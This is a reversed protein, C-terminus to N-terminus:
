DAREGVGLQRSGRAVSYVEDDVQAAVALFLLPALDTGVVCAAPHIQLRAAVDPIKGLVVSLNERRAADDIRRGVGDRASPCALAM